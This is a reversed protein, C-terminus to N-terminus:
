LEWSLIFQFLFRGANSRSRRGAPHANRRNNGSCAKGTRALSAPMYQNRAARMRRGTTLSTSSGIIVHKRPGSRTTQVVRPRTLWRTVYAATPVRCPVALRIQPRSQRPGPAAPCPPPRSRRPPVARRLDSLVFPPPWTLVAPLARLWRTRRRRLLM